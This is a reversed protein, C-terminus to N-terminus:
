CCPMCSSAINISTASDEALITLLIAALMVGSITGRGGLVTM